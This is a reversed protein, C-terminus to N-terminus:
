RDKLITLVCELEASAKYLQHFCDPPFHPLLHPRHFLLGCVPALKVGFASLKKETTVWAHIRAYMLISYAENLGDFLQRLHKPDIRIRKASAAFQKTIADTDPGLPSALLYSRIQALSKKYWKCRVILPQERAAKKQAEKLDDGRMSAFDVVTFAQKPNPCDFHSTHKPEWNQGCEWCFLQKCALCCM